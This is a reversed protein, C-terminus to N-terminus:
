NANLSLAMKAGRHNEHVTAFSTLGYGISIIWHDQRVRCPKRDLVVCHRRTRGGRRRALTVRCPRVLVRWGEESSHFSASSKLENSRLLSGCAAARRRAIYLLAVLFRSFCFSEFSRVRVMATRTVHWKRWRM